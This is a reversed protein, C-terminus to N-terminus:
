GLDGSPYQFIRVGLSMFAHVYSEGFVYTWVLCWWWLSWWKIYMYEDDNICMCICVGDRIIMMLLDDEGFDDDFLNRALCIDCSFFWENLMVWM